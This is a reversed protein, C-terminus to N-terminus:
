EKILDIFENFNITGDGNTDYKEIMEQLKKDDEICLVNIVEDKTL